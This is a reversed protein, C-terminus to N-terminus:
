NLEELASVDLMHKVLAVASVGPDVPSLIQPVVQWKKKGFLLHGSQEL